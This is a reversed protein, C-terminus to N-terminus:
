ESLRRAMDLLEGVVEDTAVPPPPHCCGDCNLCGGADLFPRWAADDPDPHWEGHQCQREARKLGQNWRVPWDSMRHDSPNHIVCPRGGCVREDHVNHLITTGISATAM